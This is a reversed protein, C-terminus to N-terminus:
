PYPREPREDVRREIGRLKVNYDAATGGRAIGTQLNKTLPGADVMPTANPLYLSYAINGPFNPMKKKRKKKKKCKCKEAKERKM